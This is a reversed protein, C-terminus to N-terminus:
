RSVCGKMGEACYRDAVRRAHRTQGAQGPHAMAAQYSMGHNPTGCSIVGGMVVPRLGAPCHNQSTEYAFVPMPGKVPPGKYADSAVAPVAWVALVAGIIFNRKM